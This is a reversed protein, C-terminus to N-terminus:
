TGFEPCSAWSGRRADRAGTEATEYSGQRAFRDDFQFVTALGGTLVTQAFDYGEGYAGPPLDDVADVFALARDFGDRVDQSRDTQLEVLVGTGGARDFLGDGDTDVPATFGLAHMFSSAQPGGCGVPQGPAVTEPTDIGILRVTERRSGDTRRVKITDGDVVDFM